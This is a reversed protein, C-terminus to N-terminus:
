HRADPEHVWHAQYDNLRPSHLYEQFCNHVSGLNCCCQCALQDQLSEVRCRSQGGVPPSCIGGKVRRDGEALPVEARSHQAMWWSRSTRCGGQFGIAKHRPFGQLQQASKGRRRSPCPSWGSKAIGYGAYSWQANAPGWCPSGLAWGTYAPSSTTTTAGWQSRLSHSSGDAYPMGLSRKPCCIHNGHVEIAAMHFKIFYIWM